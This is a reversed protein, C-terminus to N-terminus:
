QYYTMENVIGDTQLNQCINDSTIVPLKVPCASISTIIDTEVNL